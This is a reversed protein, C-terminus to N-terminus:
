RSARKAQLRLLSEVVDIVPTPVGLRRGFEAVAGVIADIELTRGAEIDQLMSTKFAGLGRAKGLRGEIGTDLRVGLREAVAQMEAMMAALVRHVGPDDIMASVGARTLASVSNLPLNGWLKMWIEDRIRSTTEVNFGDRRMARAIADLRASPSGDPEGIVLRGSSSEEFVGPEIRTAALYTVCGVVQKPPLDRLLAGDPDVSRVAEADFPGRERHFYWWPIGNQVPVITTAPGVLPTLLPAAEALSYAKSCLVLTDAPDLERPDEVARASVVAREAGDRTRLRLGHERIAALGAGRAIVAVDEGALALRAAICGGIAGAGFIVIM